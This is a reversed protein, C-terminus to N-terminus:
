YQYLPLSLTSAKIWPHYEPRQLSHHNRKLFALIYNYLYIKWFFISKYITVRGFLDDHLDLAVSFKAVYFEM